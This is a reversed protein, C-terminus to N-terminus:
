FLRAIIFIGVMSFGIAMKAAAGVIMGLWAGIGALGAAQINRNVTLEGIIAGIFPGLLIGIFGFFIGFVAGIAAGFAAKRSAGFRKVGIAGALFDLAHALVALLTLIIIIVPGIFAFNEAWAALVLGALLLIPGPIVPIILGTLGIATLLVSLLWLTITAFDM